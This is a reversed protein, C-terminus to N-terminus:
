FTEGQVVRESMFPLCGVEFDFGEQRGDVECGGVSVGEFKVKGMGLEGLVSNDKVEGFVVCLNLKNPDVDNYKVGVIGGEPVCFTRDRLIVNVRFDHDLKWFM